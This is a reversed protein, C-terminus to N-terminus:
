RNKISILNYEEGSREVVVIVDLKSEEHKLFQEIKNNSEKNIRLLAGHHYLSFGSAACEPMLACERSYSKLFNKMGTTNAYACHNDVLTGTITLKESIKGKKTEAKVVVSSVLTIVMLILVMTRM